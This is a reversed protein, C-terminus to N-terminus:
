AAEIANVLAVVAQALLGAAILTIATARQTWAIVGGATFTAVAILFFVVQTDADM